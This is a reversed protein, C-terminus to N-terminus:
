SRCEPSEWSRSGRVLILGASSRRPSAARARRIVLQMVWTELKRSTFRTFSTTRTKARIRRAIGAVSSITPSPGSRSSASFSARSSPTARPRANRPGARSPPAAAGPWRGRGAQRRLGLRETERGELRHRAARRDHRRRTPPEGLHHVVADVADELRDPETSAIPRRATSNSRSGSASRASARRRSRAPGALERGVPDHRHVLREVGFHDPSPAQGADAIESAATDEPQDFPDGLEDRHRRGAVQDQRTLPQACWPSPLRELDDDLEARDERDDPDVPEPEARPRAARLSGGAAPEDSGAM